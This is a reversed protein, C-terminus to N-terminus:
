LLTCAVFAGVCIPQIRADDIPREVGLQGTCHAIRPIASVFPLSACEELVYALARAQAADVAAGIAAQTRRERMWGRVYAVMAAGAATSEDHSDSGFIATDLVGADMAHRVRAFMDRLFAEDMPQALPLRGFVAACAEEAARCVRLAGHQVFRSAVGVLARNALPLADHKRLDAETQGLPELASAVYACRAVVAMSLHVLMSLAARAHATAVLQAFALAGFRALKERRKARDEPHLADLEARLEDLGMAAAIRRQLDADLSVLLARAEAWATAFHREAARAAGADHEATRWRVSTLAQLGAAAVLAACTGLARSALGM